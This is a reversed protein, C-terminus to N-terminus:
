YNRWSIWQNKSTKSIVPVLLERIRIKKEFKSFLICPRRIMFDELFGSGTIILLDFVYEGM